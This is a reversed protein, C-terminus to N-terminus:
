EFSSGRPSELGSVSVDSTSMAENERVWSWSEMRWAEATTFPIEGNTVGVPDVQGWTSNVRFDEDSPYEKPPIAQAPLYGPYLQQPQPTPPAIQDISYAQQPEPFNPLPQQTPPTVTQHTLYTSETQSHSTRTSPYTNPPKHTSAYKQKKSMPKSPQSKAKRKLDKTSHSHYPSQTNSTSLSAAFANSTLFGQHAPQAPSYWSPLRLTRSNSPM